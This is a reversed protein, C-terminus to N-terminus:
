RGVEKDSSQLEALVHRGEDSLLGPWFLRFANEVTQRLLFQDGRLTTVGEVDGVQAGQEERLVERLKRAEPALREPHDPVPAHAPHLREM